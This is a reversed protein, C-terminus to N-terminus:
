AGRPRVGGAARLREAIGRQGHGIVEGLYERRHRSDDGRGGGGRPQADAREHEVVVEAMRHQQRALRRQHVQEGVPPQLEAEAGAVHLRLVVLRPQREIPAAHPHRPQALGDGDHLAQQAAVRHRELAVVIVHRAMGDMRARALLGM